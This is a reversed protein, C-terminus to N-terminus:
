TAKLPIGADLNTVGRYFLADYNFKNINLCNTFSKIAEKYIKDSLYVKGQEFHEESEM